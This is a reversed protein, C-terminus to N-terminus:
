DEDASLAAPGSSREVDFHVIWAHLPERPKQLGRRHPEHTGALLGRGDTVVANQDPAVTRTSQERAAFGSDDKSINKTM